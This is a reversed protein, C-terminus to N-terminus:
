LIRFKHEIARGQHIQVLRFLQCQWRRYVRAIVQPPRSVSDKSLWLTSLQGRWLAGSEFPKSHLPELQPVCGQATSDRKNYDVMVRIHGEELGQSRRALAGKPYRRVLESRAGEWVYDLRNANFKFNSKVIKYTDISAIPPLVPLGKIVMRTKLYRYDFADGNHAIIM